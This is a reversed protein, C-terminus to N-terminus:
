GQLAIECLMDEHQFLQAYFGGFDSLGALQVM